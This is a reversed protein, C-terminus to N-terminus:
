WVSTKKATAPKHPELFTLRKTEFIKTNGNYSAV